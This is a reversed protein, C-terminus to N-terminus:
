PPITASDCGSTTTGPALVPSRPLCVLLADLNMPTLLRACYAQAARLQQRREAAPRSVAVIRSFDAVTTVKARGGELDHLTDISIEGARELYIPQVGSQVAQVVATTGRYLTWASQAIDEELTSGKSVVVNSPANLLAPNQRTLDAHSINPHLRWIFRLEPHAIACAMSFGFLANCEGAEGEPLVLCATGPPEDPAPGGPARTPKFTRNSGMVEIRPYGAPAGGRLRDRAFEGSTLVVDPNFRPALGRQVAHQMNFLVAHQYGICLVAQDVSRAAAFALREWSHGEHTIVLAAPRVAAVLRRVQEAMRLAALAGGSRAELAARAIFRREWESTADAASGRLRAAECRMARQMALEDAAGLTPSLIVRPTTGAKWHGALAQADVGSYNVLAVLVTRGAEPLRAPIDGFYFDGNQGAFSASVLHSVILVDVRDPLPRATIWPTGPGLGASALFRVRSGVTRLRRYGTRLRTRASEPAFLDEYQSLFMPHARIVHLWPIAVTEPSAHPATLLRDGSECLQRYQQENV